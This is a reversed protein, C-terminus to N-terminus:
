PHPSSAVMRNVAPLIDLLNDKITTKRDVLYNPENTILKYYFNGLTKNSINVSLLTYTFTRNEAGATRRM